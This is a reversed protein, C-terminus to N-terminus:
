ALLMAVAGLAIFPGYAMTRTRAAVGNRLLILGAVVAGASAGIVLAPLVDPGLLAGLFAVPKVDGMGLGGRSMRALVLFGLGASLSWGLWRLGPHLLTNVLLAAAWAPVVIRNPIVRRRLDVVSVAILVAVAAAVVLWHAHQQITEGGLGHLFSYVLPRVAVIF